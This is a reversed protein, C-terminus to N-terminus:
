SDHKFSYTYIYYESSIFTNTHPFCLYRVKFRLDGLPPEAYPIKYFAYFARGDRSLLTEGKLLGQKTDLIVGNIGYLHVISLFHLLLSIYM